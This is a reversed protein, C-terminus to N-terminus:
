NIQYKWLLIYKINVLLDILCYSMRGLMGWLKSTIKQFVVFAVKDKLVTQIHALKYLNQGISYSSQNQHATSACVSTHIFPYHLGQLFPFM